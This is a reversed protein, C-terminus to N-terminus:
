SKSWWLWGPKCETIVATSIKRLFLKWLWLDMYLVSIKEAELFGVAPKMMWKNWLRDWCTRATGGLAIEWFIILKTNAPSCKLKCVTQPLSHLSLNEGLIPIYNVHLILDMGWFDLVTICLVILALDFFSYSQFHFVSNLVTCASSPMRYGLMVHCKRCVSIM